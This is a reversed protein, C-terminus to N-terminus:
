GFWHQLLDVFKSAAASLVTIAAVGAGAIKAWDAKSRKKRLAIPRKDIPTFSDVKKHMAAVEALVSGVATMVEDRLGGFATSAAIFSQSTTVALQESSKAFAEVATKQERVQREVVVIRDRCELGVKHNRDLDNLVYKNKLMLEMVLGELEFYGQEQLRKMQEATMQAPQGSVPPEDHSTVLRARPPDTRPDDDRPVEM